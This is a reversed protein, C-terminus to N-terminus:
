DYINVSARLAGSSEARHKEGGREYFFLISIIYCIRKFSGGLTGVILVGKWGLM